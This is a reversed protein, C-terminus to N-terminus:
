PSFSVSKDNRAKKSSHMTGLPEENGEFFFIDVRDKFEEKTISLYVYSPTVKLRKNRDSIEIYPTDEDDSDDTRLVERTACSFRVDPLKTDIFDLVRITDRRDLARCNIKCLGIDCTKDINDISGDLLAALIVSLKEQKATARCNANWLATTFM